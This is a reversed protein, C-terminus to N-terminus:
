KTQAAMYNRYKIEEKKAQQFRKFHNQLGGSKQVGGFCLLEGKPKKTSPTGENKSEETETTEMPPAMNEKQSPDSSQEVM